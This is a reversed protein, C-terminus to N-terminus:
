WHSIIVELVENGMDEQEEQIHKASENVSRTCRYVEIKQLTLINGFSSPIMKLHKCYQLALGELSPFNNSSANWEELDVHSLKLFKLKPFESSANWTRGDFYVSGLKLVELNLLAEIIEM